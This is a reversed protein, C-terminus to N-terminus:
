YIDNPSKRIECTRIGKEWRHKTAIGQEDDAALRRQALRILMRHVIATTSVSCGESQSLPTTINTVGQWTARVSVRTTTDATERRVEAITSLINVRCQVVCHKRAMGVLTHREDVRRHDSLSALLEALNVPVSRLCTCNIADDVGIMQRRRPTARYMKVAGQCAPVTKRPPTQTPNSISRSKTRSM